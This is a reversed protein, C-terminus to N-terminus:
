QELWADVFRWGGPRLLRPTPWHFKPNISFWYGAQHLNYIWLGEDPDNFLLETMQRIIPTREKPDILGAQQDFLDWVKPMETDCRNQPSGREFFVLWANPDAFDPAARHIEIMFECPSERLQFAAGDAPTDVVVDLGIERLGQSYFIATDKHTGAPHHFLRVTKGVAGAEELLSRAKAYAETKDQRYPVLGTDRDVEEDTLGGLTPPVTLMPVGEGGENTKIQGWRDWALYIAQRVRFDQFLEEQPNLIAFRMYAGTAQEYRADPRALRAEEVLTADNRIPSFMDLEGAMFAANMTSVDGFILVDIGDMYPLGKQYLDDNRRLSFVVGPEFRDFKFPGSGVLLNTDEIEGGEPGGLQEIISSPMFSTNNNAMQHILDPRIANLNLVVTNDDPTEYSTINNRVLPAISAEGGPRGHRKLSVVVDASTVPEGNHFRADPNLNFTWSRGDSSTEWSTALDPVVVFGPQNWDYRVTSSYVAWFTMQPDDTVHADFVSPDRHRGYRLIGGYQPGGVSAAAPAPPAVAPAVVAPAAAPPPPPAKEEDAGCAVVFALMAVM